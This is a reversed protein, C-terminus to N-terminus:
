AACPIGAPSHWLLTTAQHQAVGRSCWRVLCSSKGKVVDNEGRAFFMGDSTRIKSPAMKTTNAKDSKDAEVIVSRQLRPAALAIIKDCEDTVCPLSHGSTAPPPLLMLSCSSCPACMCPQTLSNNHM